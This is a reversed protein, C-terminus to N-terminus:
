NLGPDYFAFTHDSYHMIDNRKMELLNLFRHVDWSNTETDRPRKQSSWSRGLRDALAYSSSCGQKSM